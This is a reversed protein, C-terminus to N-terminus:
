PEGPVGGGPAGQGGEAGLGEGSGSRNRRRRLVVEVVADAGLFVVGAWALDAATQFSQPWSGDPAVQLAAQHAVTYWGSAVIGAVAALGLIVRLRPVLLVVVSAVGVALGVRPSAIAGAAVGTAVGAVLAVWVPARASEPRFPVVLRPGDPGDPLGGSVV